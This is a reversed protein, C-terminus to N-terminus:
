YALSIRKKIGGRKGSDMMATLASYPISDTPFIILQAYDPYDKNMTRLCDVLSDPKSILNSNYRYVTDKKFLFFISDTEIKITMNEVSLKIEADKRSVRKPDEDEKRPLEINLSVLRNEVVSLLLLPILILFINLIPILNIDKLQSITIRKRKSTAFPM